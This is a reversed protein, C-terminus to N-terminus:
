QFTKLTLVSSAISRIWAPVPKDANSMSSLCRLDGNTWLNDHEVLEIILPSNANFNHVPHHKKKKKGEERTNQWQITKQRDKDTQRNAVWTTFLAKYIISNPNLVVISTLACFLFMYHSLSAHWQGPQCTQGDGCLSSHTSFPFCPLLLSVPTQEPFRANFHSHTHTCPVTTYRVSM